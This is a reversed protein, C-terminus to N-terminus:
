AAMAAVLVIGLIRARFVNAPTPQDPQGQPHRSRDGVGRITGGLGLATMICLSQRDWAQSRLSGGVPVRRPGPRLTLGVLVLGQPAAILVGL